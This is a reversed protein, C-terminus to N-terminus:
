NIKKFHIKSKFFTFKELVFISLSHKVLKIVRCSVDRRWKDTSAATHADHGDTANGNTSAHGHRTADDNRLFLIKIFLKL